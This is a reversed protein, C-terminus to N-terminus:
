GFREMLLHQLTTVRGLDLHHICLIDVTLERTEAHMAHQICVEVASFLM